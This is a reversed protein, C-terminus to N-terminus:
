VDKKGYKLLIKAQEIMIEQKEADLAEFIQGVRQKGHANANDSGERSYDLLYDISVDFYGAIRKLTEYDPERLNRVYNGLTSPAINLDEALKKQAIFRDELLERLVDGFQMEDGGALIIFPLKLIGWLYCM